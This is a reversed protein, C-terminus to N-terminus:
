ILVSPALKTILDEVLEGLDGAGMLVVTDEPKLSRRLTEVIEERPLHLCDKRGLRELEEVLLDSSVGPLPEEFAPYLDALVIYDAPLLARALEDTFRALRSYRHPQFVCWLKGGTLPRLAALAAKVETPHHSYDEVVLIGGPRGKTELRRRVGRYSELARSIEWFTVGAELTFAAAALANLVNHMGPLPFRIGGVERGDRKITFEAGGPGLRVDDARFASEEGWGYTLVKVGPPLLRRLRLDDGNAM